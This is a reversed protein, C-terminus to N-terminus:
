SQHRWTEIAEVVFIDSCRSMDILEKSIKENQMPSAKEEDEKAVTRRVSHSFERGGGGCVYVIFFASAICAKELDM